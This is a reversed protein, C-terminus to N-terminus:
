ETRAGVTPPGVTWEPERGEAFARPGELADPHGWQRRLLLWGHELATSYGMTPLAWLAELSASVASPSNRAISQALELSRSLASGNAVVEQVLGLEYARKADLKVDRGVLTLYLASGLGAKVALGINELAGVFGVNVHTDMFRADDSCVVIDADVVFHLGGGVALGEVACVVPTWTENQRATLRSSRRLPRDLGISDDSAVESLDIGTSFFRRSTAGVVVCRVEPDEDLDIWLRSLAHSMARDFSNGKDPRDFLIVAVHGLRGLLLGDRREIGELDPLPVINDTM